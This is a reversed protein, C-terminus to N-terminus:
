TDLNKQVDDIENSLLELTIEPKYSEAVEDKLVELIECQINEDIKKQDYGREQLRDFLSDNACRLLVVLDFCREPFFDCSHFELIIGGRTSMLPELEDCVM